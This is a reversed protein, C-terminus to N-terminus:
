WRFRWEQAKAPCVAPHQTPIQPIACGATLGTSCMYCESELEGSGEVGGDMSPAPTGELHHQSSWESRRGRRRWAVEGEGPRALHSGCQGSRGTGRMRHGRKPGTCDVAWSVAKDKEAWFGRAPLSLGEKKSGVVGYGTERGPRQRHPERPRSLGKGPYRSPHGM